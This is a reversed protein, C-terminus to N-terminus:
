AGRPCGFAHGDYIGCDPCEDRTSPVLPPTPWKSPVCHSRDWGFAMADAGDRATDGGFILPTTETVLKRWDINAPRPTVAAATLERMLDATRAATPRDDVMKGNAQADLLILLCAAAHATHPQGSEPDIQEGDLWAAIHRQAASVYVTAAVDQDRWNYPGYKEAGLKMVMAVQALASSPVLHLPPKVIGFASKPNSDPRNM